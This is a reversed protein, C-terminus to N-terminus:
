LSSSSGSKGIWRIPCSMAQRNIVLRPYLRGSSDPSSERVPGGEGGDGGGSSGASNSGNADDTVPSGFRLRRIGDVVCVRRVGVAGDARGSGAAVSNVGSRNSGGTGSGLAAEEVEGGTGGATGGGDTSAEGGAMASDRGASSFSSRGGTMVAVSASTKSPAEVKVLWNPRKPFTPGARTAMSRVPHLM